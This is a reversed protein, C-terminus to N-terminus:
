QKLVVVNALAILLAEDTFGSVKAAEVKQDSQRRYVLISDPDASYVVRGDSDTVIVKGEKRNIKYM